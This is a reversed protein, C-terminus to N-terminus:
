NNDYDTPIKKYPLRDRPSLEWKEGDVTLSDVNENYFSYLGKIKPIEALPERYSWAVDEYRKGGVVASWYTASGKYPCRTTNESPVLFEIRVDKEPLYYRPTLGTEFVIVPRVSDAVVQGNLVVQVHRSSPIADVRSYPDRPHVFIEEDEEYWHDVANWLFSLYGKIATSGPNPDPYGWVANKILSGGVSIDWYTAEGKHVCQTHHDNKQLLDLRVDAQPFYYVPLRGAENVLLANKSDAITEGGVKVRLWRPAPVIQIWWKQGPDAIECLSAQKSM